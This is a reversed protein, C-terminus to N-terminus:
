YSIGVKEVQIPYKLRGWRRIQRNGRKECGLSSLSFSVFLLTLLSLFFTFRKLTGFSRCCISLLLAFLFCCFRACVHYLRSPTSVWLFITSSRPFPLCIQLSIFPNNPHIETKSKTSALKYITQISNHDYQVWGLGPYSFTYYGRKGNNSQSLINERALLLGKIFKECTFLNIVISDLATVEETPELSIIDDTNNNIDIYHENLNIERSM